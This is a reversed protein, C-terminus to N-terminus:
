NYNALYIWQDYAMELALLYTNVFSPPASFQYKVTILMHLM